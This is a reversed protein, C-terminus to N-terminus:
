NRRLLITKRRTPEGTRTQGVHRINQGNRDSIKDSKKADEDNQLDASIKGFLIKQAIKGSLLVAIKDIMFEESQLFRDRSSFQTYGVNSHTRPVISAKVVADQSPLIWSTLCKGAEMAALVQKTQIKNVNTTKKNGALVREIASEFHEMKVLESNYNIATIAAENVVNAIQAGSMGPTLDALLSAYEKPPRETKVTKLHILFIERRGDRPPLGCHIKRDFRGPRVLADDLTEPANTAAMVVITDDVRNNMGDLEVLLQNLTTDKEQSGYQEGRKKGIADLEDIFIICPQKARAEKFITRLDKAGTGVTPKVFESAAKYYFPVDCDNAVAKALLTKGTGPPGTLLVGKPM